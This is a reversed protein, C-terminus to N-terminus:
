SVALQHSAAPAVGQRALENLYVREFGAVMREFSFRSAGDARAAAGMRVASAPDRMVSVLAGALADADGPPVLRGTRGDDVMELIGGVASAVVPLGAAM